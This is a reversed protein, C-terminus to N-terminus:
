DPHGSSNTFLRGFNLDIWKKDFSKKWLQYWPFLIGFKQAVKKM